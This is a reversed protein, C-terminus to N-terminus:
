GFQRYPSDLLQISTKYYKVAIGTTMQIAYELKKDPERCIILGAVNQNDKCLNSKVWGMYRLIQGVVVDSSKGKKLEMVLYDGSQNDVALIDIIGIDTIYQQGEIGEETYISYRGQFVRDFNTIILDELYKEVIEDNGHHGAFQTQQSDVADLKSKQDEFAGFFAARDRDIEMVTPMNFVIDDYTINAPADRWEVRIFHNHEQYPNSKPLFRARETVVGIASLTKLGRRAIIVDGVDIDHYFSWIMNVFLSRTSKPSASFEADIRASLQEKTLTSVDGLKSWGISIQSHERDYSWARDYLEQPNAQIPAIVWYRPM